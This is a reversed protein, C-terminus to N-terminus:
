VIDKYVKLIHEFLKPPIVSRTKNGSMGQTGTKSGRPSAEHHCHKNELGLIQNKNYKRCIKFKIDMNTWIYTPKARKDEYKCYWVEKKWEEPMFWVARAKPNEIFFIKNRQKCLRAIHKCFEVLQLGIIANQTKPIRDKTWHRNGSALSFSTCPPSMWVIDAELIKQIVIDPIEKVLDCTINNEFNHNNDVCFTEHGYKRMVKSFSQTGSFLEVTKLKKM